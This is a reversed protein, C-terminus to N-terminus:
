DVREVSCCTRTGQGKEVMVCERSEDDARDARSLEDTGEYCITPVYNESNRPSEIYLLPSDMGSVDAVEDDQVSICDRSPGFSGGSCLLRASDRQQSGGVLEVNRRANRRGSNSRASASRGRGSASAEDGSARAYDRDGGVDGTDLVLSGEGKEVTHVVHNRQNVTAFLHDGAPISVTQGCTSSMVRDIRVPTGVPQCVLTVTVPDTCETLSPAREDVHLDSFLARQRAAADCNGMADYARIVLKLTSASKDRAYARQLADVARGYRGEAFDQIGRAYLKEYLSASEKWAKDVDQEPQQGSAIAPMTLLALVVLGLKWAPYNTM